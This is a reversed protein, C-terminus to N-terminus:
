FRSKDIRLARNEPRLISSFRFGFDRCRLSGRSDVAYKSGDSVKFNNEKYLKVIWKECYKNEEEEGGKQPFNKLFGDLSKNNIFIWEEAELSPDIGLLRMLNGNYSRKLYAGVVEPLWAAPKSRGTIKFIKIGMAEYAHMDEPRIFNAKLFERPCTLKKENCTAHFSGDISGNGLYQYHANRDPCRRLCSETLMIEVEINKEKAFKIIKALDKFNRNVDHHLVVRKPRVELFGKLDEKKRIGAITSIYIPVGPYNERVFKMLELSTIMLADARFDNIIWDLYNGIKEVDKNKSFSFPANLLYIFKLGLDEVYKKFDVADKKNINPVASFARGHGIPGKALCGYIEKIEIDEVRSCIRLIKDLIAKDWHCPITLQTKEM